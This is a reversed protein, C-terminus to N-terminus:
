GYEELGWIWSTMIKWLVTVAFYVEQDREKLKEIEHIYGQPDQTGIIYAVWQRADEDTLLGLMDDISFKGAKSLAWSIGPRKSHDIEPFKNIVEPTFHRALKALARAAEIRINEEIAAFSEILADIAEKKRLEGLAWAAGARIEPHQEKDLLTDILIQCSVDKDIEGLVIVAELRNQLYENSLCRKIFDYGRIDDQRALSAAAELRVYIHERSDNLKDVLSNAIQPSTFFALAKAATYRKSLSTSSLLEIYYDESASKDCPFILSVPVVSAIIQNKGVREGEKVLPVMVQGRKSLRLTIIRGDFERRYQLRERSVSTVVGPANAIAAPWIIRMEFGEEAGKPQTLTARGGEYALRLDKVSVYQIPSSVQWDIPKDGTKSCVVFAVLDNDDLGYDWGREPDAQSHSMSIELKTKTRCEVCKGCAVCLIDPVRIRKIKIDKWIKFSRSGRELEIPTHGQERLNNFVAITGIAGMSIKELFSVDSKFARKNAM